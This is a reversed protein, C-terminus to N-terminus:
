SKLAQFLAKFDKSSKLKLKKDKAIRELEQQQGRDFFRFVDKKKLKIRRPKDGRELVYYKDSRSFRPEIKTIGQDKGEYFLIELSSFIQLLESDYLIDYFILPSKPNVRKFLYNEEKGKMFIERIVKQDIILEKADENVYFFENSYLDYQLTIENTKNKDILVVYGTLFDPELYPSGQIDNYELNYVRFENVNLSGLAISAEMPSNGAALIGASQAMIDLQIVVGVILFIFYKM